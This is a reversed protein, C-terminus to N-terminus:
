VLSIKFKQDRIVPVEEASVSIAPTVEGWLFPIKNDRFKAFCWRAGSVILLPSQYM